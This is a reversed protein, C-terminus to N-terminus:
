EELVLAVTEVYLLEGNEDFAAMLQEGAWVTVGLEYEEPTEEAILSASDDLMARVADLTTRETFDLPNYRLSILTLSPQEDLPVTLLLAGDLFEYSIELDLYYWTEWRRVGGSELPEFWLEFVDPPGLLSQLQEAETDGVPDSLAALAAALDEKAKASLEAPEAFVLGGEIEPGGADDTGDDGGGGLLLVAGVAVAAVVLIAGGAIGALRADFRRGGTVTGPEV